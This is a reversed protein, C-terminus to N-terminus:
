AAARRRRRALGVLGAAGAGLVLLSAPEPVSPAYDLTLIAFTPLQGYSTLVNLATVLVVTGVGGVLGNGGMLTVTTPSTTQLVLSTTKTTWANSFATIGLGSVVPPTVVTPVGLTVPVGLLTLGGYAKVNALGTVGMSGPSSAAFVGGVPNGNAILQVATVPPPFAPTNVSTAGTPVAGAAVNWAATAGTGSASGLGTLGTATFTVPPFGVLVIQLSASALSGAHAVGSSLGVIAALVLWIRVRLMLSRMTM